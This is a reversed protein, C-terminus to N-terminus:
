PTGQIMMACSMASITQTPRVLQCGDESLSRSHSPREVPQNPTTAKPQNTAVNRTSTAPSNTNQSKPSYAEAFYRLAIRAAADPRKLVTSPLLVLVEGSASALDADQVFQASGSPAITNRMKRTM